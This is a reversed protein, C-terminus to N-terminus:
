LIGRWPQRQLAVCTSARSGLPVRQCAPRPTGHTPAPARRPRCLGNRSTSTAERGPPSNNTPYRSHGDPQWAMEQAKPSPATSPGTARPLARLKAEPYFRIMSIRHDARRVTTRCIPPSCLHSASARSLSRNRSPESVHASSFFDSSIKMRVPVSSGSSGKTQQVQMKGGLTPPAGAPRSEGSSVYAM